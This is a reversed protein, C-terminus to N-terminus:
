KKDKTFFRKLPYLEYSFGKGIEIKFGHWVGLSMVVLTTIASILQITEAMILDSWLFLCENTLTKYNM